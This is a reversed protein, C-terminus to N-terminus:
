KIRIVLFWIESSNTKKDNPELGVPKEIRTREGEGLTFFAITINSNQFHLHM